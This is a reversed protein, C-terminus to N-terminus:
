QAAELKSDLSAASKSNENELFQPLHHLPM